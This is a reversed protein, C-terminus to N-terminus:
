LLSPRVGEGDEEDAPHSAGDEGGALRKAGDGRKAPEKCEQLMHAIGTFPRGDVPRTGASPPSNAGVEGVLGAAGSVGDLGDTPSSPSVGPLFVPRGTTRGTRSDPGTSPEGDQEAQTPEAPQANGALCV